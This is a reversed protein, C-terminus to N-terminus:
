LNGKMEALVAFIRKRADKCRLLLESPPDQANIAMKIFHLETAAMGLADIIKGRDAKWDIFIKNFLSYGAADWDELHGNKNWGEFTM